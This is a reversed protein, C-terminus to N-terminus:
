ALAQVAAKFQNGREKYDKFMDFSSAATSLLVIDGPRSEQRAIRVIDEMTRLGTTIRTYGKKRLMDVIKDTTEGIAIVHRVDDNAIQNILSEFPLGKDIGGLILVKPQSFSKLAVLATDPNTGFSDNYYKVGQLERVLELRHELGSFSSLVTKAKDIGELAEFVATLAACINQLNHEGLLKVKSKHIVETEAAGVVIMGDQRVYAGPNQYYPVKKGPSYHAIKKSNEDNAFYIAIDHLKQHKFINAKAGVYEDMNPHWDLHEPALMLCVAIHPSYPFDMLQFNALELVVWDEAAVKQVIDLVAKGINGALWVKQGQAELLNAILTSTTGKGKSGTVGIINKTKVEEFFIHQITTAKQWFDANGAFVTQLNKYATVSYIIKDCKEIGNLYSLNSVNGTLGAPKQHTIFQVKVKDSEAPFDNRPHENVILYENDTGFFKYASQGEVGWGVIGIRM